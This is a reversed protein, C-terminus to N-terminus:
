SGRTRFRRRVANRQRERSDFRAPALFIIL